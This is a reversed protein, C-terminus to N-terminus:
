PSDMLRYLWPASGFSAPEGFPRASVKTATGEMGVKKVSANTPNMAPEMRVVAQSVFLSLVCTEKTVKPASVNAKVLANVEM